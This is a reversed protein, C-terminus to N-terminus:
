VGETVLPPSAEPEPTAPVGPEQDDLQEIWAVACAATEVLESRLRAVDGRGDVREMVEKAVEGFEEALIALRATPNLVRGAGHLRDQRWREQILDGLILQMGSSKNKV